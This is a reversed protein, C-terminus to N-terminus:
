SFFTEVVQTVADMTDTCHACVSWSVRGINNTTGAMGGSEGEVGNGKLCWGGYLINLLLM